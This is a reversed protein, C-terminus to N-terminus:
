LSLVHMVRHLLDYLIVYCEIYITSLMCFYGMNTTGYIIFSSSRGKKISVIMRKKFVRTLTTVFNPCYVREAITVCFTGRGSSDAQSSVTLRWMHVTSGGDTRELVVIYFPENFTAAKRLDVIAELGSETITNVESTEVGSDASETDNSTREGTFTVIKLPKRRIFLNFVLCILSQSKLFDM